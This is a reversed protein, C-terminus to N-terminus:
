PLPLNQMELLSWPQPGVLESGTRWMACAQQASVQALFPLPTTTPTPKDKGRNDKKRGQAREQTGVADVMVGAANRCVQWLRLAQTQAAHVGEGHLLVAAHHAHGHEALHRHTAAEARRWWARPGAALARDHLGDGYATGADESVTRGVGGQRALRHFTFATKQLALM